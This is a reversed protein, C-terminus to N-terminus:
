SKRLIQGRGEGGRRRWGGGAGEGDEGRGGQQLRRAAPGEDRGGGDRGPDEGEAGPCPAKLQALAVVEDGDDVPHRHHRAAEGGGPGALHGVPLDGSALLNLHHRQEVRASVEVFLQCRVAGPLLHGHVQQLLSAVLQLDELM